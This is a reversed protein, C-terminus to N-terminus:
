GDVKSNLDAERGMAKAIARIIIKLSAVLKVELPQETHMRTETRNGYNEWSMRIPSNFVLELVRRIRAVLRNQKNTTWNGDPVFERWEHKGGVQPDLVGFQVSEGKQEAMYNLVYQLAMVTRASRGIVFAQDQGHVQLQISFSKKGREITLCMDEPHEILLKLVVQLFTEYDNM